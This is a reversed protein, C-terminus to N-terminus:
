STVGFPTEGIVHAAIESCMGAAVLVGANRGPVPAPDVLRTLESGITWVITGFSWVPRFSSKLLKLFLGLQSLDSWRFGLYGM